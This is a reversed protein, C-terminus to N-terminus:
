GKSEPAETASIDQNDDDGQGADRATAPPTVTFITADDGELVQYPVKERIDSVFLTDGIGLTSVDVDIREPIEAPKVKVKLVNLIQTLVGGEKVGVSTGVAHVPIDVEIEEEMNISLFDVHKVDGKLACRQVEVILAKLRKGEVDIDFISTRGRQQVEKAIEKYDVSIPTNEINYGYIVGPLMGGKRLRTLESRIGTKRKTAQIVTVIIM